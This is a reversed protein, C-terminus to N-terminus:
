VGRCCHRIARRVFEGTGEGGARDINQTFEGGSAYMEGLSLLIQDTCAYYHATIFDQLQRVLAQAEACGPDKDRLRGFSAFVAMMDEGLARNEEPTRGRDKEEFERYERTQGWRAKAQAKYEEMKKTDFASFDMILGGKARIERALAILSETHQKRMELLAIQDDLAQMRDFSPNELMTKIDQLKFELDRLLLIQQLRELATDDYLRYGAETRRAPHLLGIRDYYQLARISVGTLGSVEHVTRVHM